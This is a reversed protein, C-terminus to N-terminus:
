IFMHLDAETASIIYAFIAIIGAGTLKDISGSFLGITMKKKEM